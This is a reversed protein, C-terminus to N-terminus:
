ERGTLGAEQPDVVPDFMPPMEFPRWGRPTFWEIEGTWRNVRYQFEGSLDYEYRCMWACFAILGGAALLLVTTGIRDRM